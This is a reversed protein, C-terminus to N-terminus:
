ICNNNIKYRYWISEGPAVGARWQEETGYRAMFERLSRGKQFRIDYRPM